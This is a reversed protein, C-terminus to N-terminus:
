IGFGMAVLIDNMKESRADLQGVVCESAIALQAFQMSLPIGHQDHVYFEVDLEPDMLDRTWFLAHEVDNINFTHRYYCRENDSHFEWDQKTLDLSYIERLVVQHFDYDSREGTHTVSWENGDHYLMYNHQQTRLTFWLAKDQQSLPLYQPICLDMNPSIIIGGEPMVKNPHFVEISIVDGPILLIEGGLVTQILYDAKYDQSLLPDNLEIVEQQCDGIRYFHFVFDECPSPVMQHEVMYGNEPASLKLTNALKQIMGDSCCGLNTIINVKDSLMTINFEYEWSPSAIYYHSTFATIEDSYEIFDYVADYVTYPIFGIHRYPTAHIKKLYGVIDIIIDTLYQDVITSINPDAQIMAHISDKINIRELFRIFMMLDTKFAKVEASEISEQKKKFTVLNDM